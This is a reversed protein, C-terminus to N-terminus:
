RGVTSDSSGGGVDPRPEDHRGRVGGLPLTGPGSVTGFHVRLSERRLACQNM